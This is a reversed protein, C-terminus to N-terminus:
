EHLEAPYIGWISDKLVWGAFKGVRIRCWDLTCVELEAVVEREVRAAMAAEQDPRVRLPVENAVVIVYRAGSLLSYHMWGGTGDFTRVRRWHEYEGTVELPLDKRVFVWDIKYALGPGRRVRGQSAKMSVFRPMPLRTVPGVNESAATEGDKAAAYQLPLLITALMMAWLIPIKPLLSSGFERKWSTM